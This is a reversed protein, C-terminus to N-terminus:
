SATDKSVHPQKAEVTLKYVLSLQKRVGKLGLLHYCRILSMDGALSRLTQASAESGLLASKQFESTNTTALIKCAVNSTCANNCGISWQRSSNGNSM